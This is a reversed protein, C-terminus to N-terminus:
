IEDNSFRLVFLNDSELHKQRVEDIQKVEEIEHISGDLEIVLKLAHCCFDLIYNGYPHQGRFKFGLPETKLYQWLLEEFFTQQKRLEGARVFLIGAGSFMNSKIKGAM